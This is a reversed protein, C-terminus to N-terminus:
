HSLAILLLQCLQKPYNYENKVKEFGNHAIEKREKEHNLYYDAKELLEEISGYVDFDVGPDFFDFLENQHNSLMFGECGLIDFVRLPIGSRIAKSTTNINIKANHFILPMETMTNAFGRNNIKPMSSTDSGTYIDVSFKESLVKFTNERELATIKNGIYLQSLTIRDTLYNEFPYTYYNPFHNKMEDMLDDTLLEDVFYYGYIKLQAQMLANLYGEYYPSIGNMEDYPSKESYLSGVFAIDSSFKNRTSASSQKIISQKQKINVALPFHFICDPNLYHIDNYQEKDFVFVRNYANKIQKAFLEMVPSDVIWSIYPIKFINCVDSIIPFFNITFVIDQPNNLLFSSVINAHETFTINKNTIEETIQTVEHGLEEFADIIDPECISGYRYFLVKM